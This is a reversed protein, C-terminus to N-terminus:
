DSLLSAGAGYSKGIRLPTRDMSTDLGYSNGTRVLKRDMCSTSGYLEGLLSPRAPAFMENQARLMLCVLMLGDVSGMLSSRLSKKTKTPKGYAIRSMPGTMITTENEQPKRGYIRKSIIVLTTPDALKEGVSLVGINANTLQPIAGKM